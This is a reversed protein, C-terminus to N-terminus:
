FQRLFLQAQPIPALDTGRPFYQQLLLNTNENTGCQWPSQPDCFYVQVDTAVTFEKHKAMELGCAWTPSLRLTAPLKRVHERLAAVVAETEKSPVKVLMLFRSHREVLTAIYSNKGGALLDGEWHGSIARDEAEAPRERISIADVIQGRSHGPESAHRSRRMSENHPYQAKLWGAIQEPSWDLILKSAVLDRLESNASLLCRKPRLAANWAQQDADYARYTPRGGHRAIEWSVRCAARHLCSTIERISSGSAMGRSIDERQAFTLALRSRRRAVPPIGRRPLLV